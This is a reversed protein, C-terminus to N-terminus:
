CPQPVSHCGAFAGAIRGLEGLEHHVDGAGVGSSSPLPGAATLRPRRPTPLAALCPGVLEGSFLAGCSPVTTDNAGDVLVGHAM